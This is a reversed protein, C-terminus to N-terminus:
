IVVLGAERALAALRKDCTALPAALRRALVLYFIDYTAHECRVSESLVEEYLEGAHFYVDVVNLARALLQRAEDSTCLGARVYKWFANTVEFALLDPAALRDGFDISQVLKAGVPTMLAMQVLASADCVIM